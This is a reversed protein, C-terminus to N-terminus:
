RKSTKKKAPKKTPAKKTTKRAAPKKTKTTTKKGTTKRKAKPTSKKAAPAKAAKKKTTRGSYAKTLRDVGTSPDYEEPTEPDLEEFVSMPKPDNALQRLLHVFLPADSKRLASKMTDAAADLGDDPAVLGLWAAARFMRDDLPVVHSGLAALLVHNRVFPTTHRVKDLERTAQDQTRRKLGELDFPDERPEGTVVSKDFVHQLAARVRHARHEGDEEDEFVATIETISSVRIENWDHFRAELAEFLEDAREVTRNELCVGHLLTEMVNRDTKPVHGDYRKKLQAVLKKCIAQKESAKTSKSTAM